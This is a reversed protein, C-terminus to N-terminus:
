ISLIGGYCVEATRLPSSLVIFYGDKGNSRINDPLGSFTIKKKPKLFCQHYFNHQSNNGPLRDVFVESQGKREGKLFYRDISINM